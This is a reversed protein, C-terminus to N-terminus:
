VEGLPLPTSVAFPRAQTLLAELFAEPMAVMAMHGGAPLSVFRKAPAEIAEVYAEALSTPTQIDDAGQIVVFPVALPAYPPGDSYRFNAGMLAVASFNAAGFWDMVQRLSLGPSSLLGVVVRGQMGRENAPSYRGILIKRETMTQQLSWPPPGLGVLAAESRADGAARVRALLAEYGVEENRAADVVQGAGVLACFLEPRRRAMTMAVMSGWSGGFLIAKAHGTRRLAHAAVELGDEAIRALSVEDQARPAHSFTLGAGRQDWHVVTFHAEWGRTTEAILSCLGSGPGGHAVVIVPNALDEGRISVWQEIGGIQVFGAEDIGNPGRIELAAAVRGQRWARWGLAALVLVIPAGIIIELWTGM